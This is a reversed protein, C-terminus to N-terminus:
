WLLTDGIELNNKKVFGEVVEFVYLAETEPLYSESYDDPHANQKIFVIEKDKNLWMIDIPFKMNKMWFPWNSSQDFVFLMGQDEQLEDAVSLGRSRAAPTDAVWADVSIDLDEFSVLTKPYAAASLVEEANQDRVGEGDKKIGKHDNILYTFVALMIILILWLIPKKKNNTKDIAM